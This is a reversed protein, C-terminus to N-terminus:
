STEGKSWDVEEIALGMTGVSPPFDLDCLWEAVREAAHADGEVYFNAIVKHAAGIQPDNTYETWGNGDSNM